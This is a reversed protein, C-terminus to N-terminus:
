ELSYTPDEITRVTGVETTIDFTVLWHMIVPSISVYVDHVSAEYVAVSTIDSFTGLLLLKVM